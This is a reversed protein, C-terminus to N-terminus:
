ILVSVSIGGVVLLTAYSPHFLGSYFQNGTSNLEQICEGSTLNWIKVLNPSISALMDGTTDWCINNV